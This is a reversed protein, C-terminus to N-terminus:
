KERYYNDVFKINNHGLDALYKGLIKGRENYGFICLQTYQKLNQIPLHSFLSELFKKFNFIFKERYEGHIKEIGIKELYTPAVQKLEYESPLNDRSGYFIHTEENETVSLKSVQDLTCLNHKFIPIDLYQEFCNKSLKFDFQSRKLCVSSFLM